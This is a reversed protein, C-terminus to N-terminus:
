SAGEQARDELRADGFTERAVDRADLANDYIDGEFWVVERGDVPALVRYRDNTGAPRPGIGWGDRGVRSDRHRRLADGDIDAGIGIYALYAEDDCDRCLFTVRWGANAQMSPPTWVVAQNCAPCMANQWAETLDLCDVITIDIDHPTGAAAAKADEYTAYEVGDVTFNEAALVVLEHDDDCRIVAYPECNASVVNV